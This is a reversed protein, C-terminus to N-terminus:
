PPLAQRDIIGAIHVRRGSLEIVFLVQHRVLGVLSWVEVTFFDTARLVDWHAKIFDSWTTRQKRLPSPELGHRSLVNAITTRAVAHGLNWLAGRIREYGWRPNERAMRLILAEIEEKIRPRGGKSRNTSGDYKRAILDRHWRLLTDPTVLTDLTRLLRRGLGKAAVALRSRQKNTFRIRGGRRHLQERLVANEVKLYAIVRSQEDSIANALAMAFMHWPRILFKM